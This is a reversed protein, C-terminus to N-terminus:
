YYYSIILAITVEEELKVAADKVKINAKAEIAVEEVENVKVAEAEVAEAVIAV